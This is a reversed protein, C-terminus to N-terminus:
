ENGVESIGNDSAASTDAETGAGVRYQEIVVDRRGTHKPTMARPTILDNPNAVMAALNHQAACGFNPHAENSYTVALNQSWDGCEPPIAVFSEFALTIPATTGAAGKPYNKYVVAHPNIGAASIMTRIESIAVAMSTRHRARRPKVIVLHGTGSSRFESLFRQVDARVDAPLRSMNKHVPIEVSVRADTVAIPYREAPSNPAYPSGIEYYDMDTMCGGLALSAALVAAAAAPRITQRTKINKM